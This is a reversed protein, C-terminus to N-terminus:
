AFKRAEGGGAVNDVCRGCLQPHASNRGVDERHHWCRVCKDHGSPAVAVALGKIDTDKAEASRAALPQLRAYSTIFVFRLEDDLKALRSRLPDDCYLDIEADLSGGIGGAVRLKELLPAVAARVAMVEEWYAQDFGTKVTFAPWREYWTELFVSTSRKGPMFSWIEEASFSLIPALWRVLAELIHYM